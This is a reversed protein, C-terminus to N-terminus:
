PASPARYPIEPFELGEFVFGFYTDTVPVVLLVGEEM